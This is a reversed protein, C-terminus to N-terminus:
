KLSEKIVMEEMKGAVEIPLLRGHLDEYNGDDFLKVQYEEGAFKVFYVTYAPEIKPQNRDIEKLVNKIMGLTYKMRDEFDSLNDSAHFTSYIHETLTDTTDEVTGAYYDEFFKENADQSACVKVFLDKNDM